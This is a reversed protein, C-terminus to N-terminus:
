KYFEKLKKLREPIVYKANCLDCCRKGKLPYPDNGYGKFKKRCLSCTFTLENTKM